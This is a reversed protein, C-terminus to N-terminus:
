GRKYPAEQDMTRFQRIQDTQVEQVYDTKFKSFESIELEKKM